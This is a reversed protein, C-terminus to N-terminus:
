VIIIIIIIILKIKRPNYWQAVPRDGLHDEHPNTSSNVFNYSLVIKFIYLIM